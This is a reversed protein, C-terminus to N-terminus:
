QRWTIEPRPDLEREFMVGGVGCDHCVGPRQGHHVAGCTQCVWRSAMMRVIDARSVVGVVRSGRMIPVRKFHNSTLLQAIQDVPTAEGASIVRRSMIDAVIEGHKSILDAESLLGVMTGAADIVPVGSINHESLLRAADQITAEPRITIIRQTMIDRALM